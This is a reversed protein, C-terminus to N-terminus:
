RRTAYKLGGSVRLTQGQKMGGRVATAMGRLLGLSAGDLGGRRDFPNEAGMQALLAALPIARLAPREVVSIGSAINRAILVAQLPQHARNAEPAATCFNM